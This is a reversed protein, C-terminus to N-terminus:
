RRCGPLLRAQTCRIQVDAENFQSRYFRASAKFYGLMLLFWVQNTPTRLSDLISEVKPPTAFFRKREASNFLPPSDFELQEEGELISMRPM